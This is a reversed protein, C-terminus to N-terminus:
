AVVYPVIGYSILVRSADRIVNARRLSARAAVAVVNSHHFFRIACRESRM